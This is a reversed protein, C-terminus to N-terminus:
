PISLTDNVIIIVRWSTMFAFDVIETLMGSTFLGQTQNQRPMELSFLISVLKLNKIKNSQKWSTTANDWPRGSRSPIKWLM